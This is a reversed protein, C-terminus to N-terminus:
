LLDNRFIADDGDRWQLLQSIPLPPAAEREMSVSHVSPPDLPQQGHDQQGPLHLASNKSSHSGAVVELENQDDQPRRCYHCAGIVGLILGVPVVIVITIIVSTSSSAALQQQISDRTRLYKSPSQSQSLTPSPADSDHRVQINKKLSLSITPTRRNTSSIGKTRTSSLLLVTRSDGRDLSPSITSISASIEVASKTGADTRTMSYQPTQTGSQSGWSATSSLSHLASITVEHSNKTLSRSTSHIQSLSERPRTSTRSGWPGSPSATKSASIQASASPSNRSLTLQKTRTMSSTPNYFVIKQMMGGDEHALMHCHFVATGSITGRFDMRLLVKHSVVDSGIPLLITDYTASALAVSGGYLLDVDPGGLEVSTGNLQLVRFHSQHIHFSHYENAANELLWEEETGVKVFVDPPKTMNFMEPTGASWKSVESLFFVTFVDGLLPNVFESFVFHRRKIQSSSTSVNPRVLTKRSGNLANPFLLPPISSSLAQVFLVSAIPNEPEYDGDPGTDVNWTKFSINSTSMNSFDKPRFTVIIERRGAPPIVLFLVPIPQQVPFGDTAVLEVPIIVEKAGSSSAAVLSLNLVRDACSNLIRWVQRVNGGQQYRDGVAVEIVAPINKPYQVDVYNINIDWAPYGRSPPYQLPLRMSRIVFVQEPLGDISMNLPVYEELGEVVIPGSAGGLVADASVGHVHPHYWYLGPPQTLPVDIRYTFYQGSGIMTHLVEDHTCMASVHFGHFHVNTAGDSDMPIMTDCTTLNYSSLPRSSSQGVSNYLTFFLTDGPFLRLTPGPNLSSVSGNLLHLFCYRVDTLSVTDSAYMMDVSLSRASADRFLNVPNSVTAGPPFHPCQLGTAAIVVLTLPLIISPLMSWQLNLLM